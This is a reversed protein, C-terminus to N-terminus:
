PLTRFPGALSFNIFLMPAKSSLYHPDFRRVSTLLALKEGEDVMVRGQVSARGCLRLNRPEELNGKRAHIRLFRDGPRSGSRSVAKETRRYRRLAIRDHTFYKHQTTIVGGKCRESFHCCNSVLHQRVGVAAFTWTPAHEV